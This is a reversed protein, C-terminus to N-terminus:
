SGEAYALVRDIFAQRRQSDHIGNEDELPLRPYREILLRAFLGGGQSREMGQPDFCPTDYLGCSPSRSKLIFGSIDSLGEFWDQSFSKLADTVDLAPDDVGLVQLGNPGTVLRVPPRPVGLGAGAEPCVPLWEFCDSLTDIICADRKHGGDYRVPEGLLCASIGVRPKVSVNPIDNGM